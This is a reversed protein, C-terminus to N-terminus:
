TKTEVVPEFLEPHAKAVPHTAPLAEGSHVLFEVDGVTCSFSTTAQVQKASSV